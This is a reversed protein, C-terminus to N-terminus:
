LGARWEFTRRLGEEIGVFDFHGIRSELRATDLEFHSVDYRSAEVYEWGFSPAMTKVLGLIEDVSCVNGSAVNVVGPNLGGATLRALIETFDEVYIFDKRASGDGWVKFTRGEMADRIAINCIGQRESYHYPGYPNSLRIILPNLGFVRSHQMLYKEISLKVVGYSSIPFVDEDESHRTSTGDGYVAGGSSIYVIDRVGHRLMTEILSVTPVLNSEIDFRASFTGAPVTTSLSHIVLDIANEEFIREILANDSFDGAYVRDVCDFAVGHPHSSFRDFVVARCSGSMHNDIYKLINTGLFGFGGLVLM